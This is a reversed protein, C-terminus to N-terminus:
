SKPRPRPFRGPPATRLPDVHPRAVRAKLPTARNRLLTRGAARPEPLVDAELTAFMWDIFVSVIPAARMEARCAVYFSDNALVSLDFPMVLEGRAILQAATITDGLAVGQGALAAETALRADSLFLQSGRDLASADAAALWTNWERGDDAHLLRHHSLDRVTRLPRENALGPSLVPFLRLHSWLRNWSGGLDGRGYLVAIDVNPDNLGAPDNGAVLRLTIGPFQRTFSDLRPIMWLSLLAPVCTVTLTGNAEPRRMRAAAAAIEGFAANLTPQLLAGQSTLKMGRAGREFLTVGFAEELLRIQHSVAGHTVGLERAAASVSGRRAAAEFARLANLSPLRGPFASELVIRRQAM